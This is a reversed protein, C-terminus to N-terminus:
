IDNASREPLARIWQEIDSARWGVARKTIQIPAPFQGAKVLQYLASKRLGILAEVQPRRLIRSGNSIERM